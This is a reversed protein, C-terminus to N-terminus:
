DARNVISRVDNAVRGTEVGYDDAATRMFTTHADVMDPVTRCTKLSALFDGQAQLRQGAFRMTESLMALPLDFYMKKLATQLPLAMRLAKEQMHESQSRLTQEDM